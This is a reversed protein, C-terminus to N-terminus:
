FYKRLKLHRFVSDGRVVYKVEQRSLNITKVALCDRVGCPRRDWSKHRERSVWSKWLFRCCSIDVISWVGWYHLHRCMGLTSCCSLSRDVVNRSADHRNIYILFFLVLADWELLSHVGFRRSHLKRSKRCYRTLRWLKLLWAPNVNKRV